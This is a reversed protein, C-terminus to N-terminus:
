PQAMLQAGSAARIREDRDTAFLDFITVPLHFTDTLLNAPTIQAWPRQGRLGHMGMEWQQQPELASWQDQVRRVQDQQAANMDDWRSPLGPPWMSSVTVDPFQETVSYSMVVPTDPDSRLLTTVEQWGQDVWTKDGGGPDPQYWLGRRYLGAALGTDIIDAMWARDPGDVWAFVECWGHIKAALALAPSGVALATNMEINSTHLQVGAVKLPQGGVRLNTALSSVLARQADYCTAPWRAGQSERQEWLRKNAADEALAKDLMDHLYGGDGFVGSGSPPRVVMSMIEKARAFGDSAGELGWYARAPGSALWGLWARESGRLRADAHPTHFYICSV